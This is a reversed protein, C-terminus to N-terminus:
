SSTPSITRPVQCLVVALGVTGGAYPYLGAVRINDYVMGRPEEVGFQKLKGPGLVYPVTSNAGAYNFESVALVMPEIGVGWESGHSLFMQNIIAQFYDRRPVILKPQAPQFIDPPPPPSHRPEPAPDRPVMRGPDIKIILPTKTDGFRLRDWLDALTAM